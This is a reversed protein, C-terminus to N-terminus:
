EGIKSKYNILLPQNKPDLLYSIVSEKDFGLVEGSETEFRTGNQVIVGQLICEEVLALTTLYAVDKAAYASFGDPDNEIIHMLKADIVDNNRGKFNTGSLIRIMAVKTAVSMKSALGAAKMRKQSRTAQAIIDSDEDYMYHTCDFDAAEKSKAVWNHAKAIGIKLEDFPNAPDLLITHNPLTVSGLKTDFFPHEVGEKFRTDLDYGTIESLKKLREDPIDIKYRRTVPDVTAYIVVGQDISDSPPLGHFREKAIPRIEIM